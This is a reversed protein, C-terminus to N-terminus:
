RPVLMRLTRRSGSRPDTTKQDIKKPVGTKHHYQTRVPLYWMDAGNESSGFTLGQNGVIM